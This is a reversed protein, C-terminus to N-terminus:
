RKIIEKVREAVSLPTFPEGSSDFMGHVRVGTCGLVREVEFVIQGLNMEVVLVHKAKSSVRRLEDEPFPWITLPRFLGAKKGEERLHRIAGKSSRASGGIAFIIVEADDCMYVENKLIRDLNKYIKNHMRVNMQHVLEGSQIPFGDENHSLGTVHYRYGEGFSAMPPVYDDEGKFPKYEEPKVKPKKRDIVPIEGEEPIVIKERMHGIIEDSLVIVPTRFMESLNFARVTETFMESVSSPCVAIIPHDGHTGWRAQMIDAQAPSTPLGTSPGGRQVNVVVCPIETICAYGLNELKLS